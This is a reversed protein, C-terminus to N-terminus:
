FVYGKRGRLYFFSFAYYAFRTVSHLKRLVFSSNLSELLKLSKKFFAEGSTTSILADPLTVVWAHTHHNVALARSDLRRFTSLM